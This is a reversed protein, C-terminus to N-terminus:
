KGIWGTNGTGSEKVYITTGAAGDTRLYVSGKVASRVGEPTNAGSYLTLGSFGMYVTSLYHPVLETSAGQLNGYPLTGTAPFAYLDTAYTGRVKNDTIATYSQTGTVRLGYNASTTRIDNWVIAARDTTGTTYLGIDTFGMIKNYLIDSDTPSTYELGRAGGVVYNYLVHTGKQNVKIGNFCNKIKNWSLVNGADFGSVEVGMVTADEIQNFSLLSSTVAALLGYTGGKTRNHSIDLDTPYELESVNSFFAYIAPNSGRAIIKSHTVSSGSTGSLITVNGNITNNSADVNSVTGNTGLYQWGILSLATTNSTLTNNSATMGSVSGYHGFFTLAEDIATTLINDTVSGGESSYTKDAAPGGMIWMAGGEGTARTNTLRNETLLLKNCGWLWVPAVNSYDGTTCIGEITLGTTKTMSVFGRPHYDGTAYFSVGPAHSIKFGKLTINSNGNVIDSNSIARSKTTDWTALAHIEASDNEAIVATNDPLNFTSSIGYRQSLVVTRSALAARNLAATMDTTGPTTNATFYEPRAEKLGTVTGSNAFALWDGCEFPGNFVLSGTGAFHGGFKVEVAKTAPVTITGSIPTYGMVYITQQAAGGGAVASAFTAKISYSGNQNQVLVPVGNISISVSAGLVTLALALMLSKLNMFKNM